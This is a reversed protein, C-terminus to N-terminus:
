SMSATEKFLDGFLCEKVHAVPVSLLGLRGM